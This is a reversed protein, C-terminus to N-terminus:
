NAHELTNVSNRSLHIHSYEMYYKLDVLEHGLDRTLDLALLRHVQQIRKSLRAMKM